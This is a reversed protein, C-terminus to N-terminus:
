VSFQISKLCRSVDSTTVRVPSDANAVNYMSFVAYPLWAVLYGTIMAVVMKAVHTVPNSHESLTTNKSIQFNAVTSM